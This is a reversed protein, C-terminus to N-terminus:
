LANDDLIRMTALPFLHSVERPEYRGRFYLDSRAGEPTRLDIRGDEYLLGVAVRNGQQDRLEIRRV